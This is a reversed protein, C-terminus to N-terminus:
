VVSKRDARVFRSSPLADFPDGAVWDMVTYCGGFADGLELVAPTPATRLKWSGALADREYDDRYRGFKIVMPRGAALFRFASSWAGGTLLEVEDVRDFRRGMLAAVDAVSLAIKAVNM